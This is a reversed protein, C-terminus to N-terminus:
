FSSWKSNKKFQIISYKILTVLKTPIVITYHNELYLLVSSKWRSYHEENYIVEKNLFDFFKLMNQLQYSNEKCDSWFIM